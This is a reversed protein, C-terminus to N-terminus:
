KKESEKTALVVTTVEKKKQEELERSVSAWVVHEARLEDKPSGPLTYKKTPSYKQLEKETYLKHMIGKYMDAANPDRNKLLEPVDVVPVRVAVVSKSDQMACAFSACGCALGMILLTKM